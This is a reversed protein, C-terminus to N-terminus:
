CTVIEEGKLRCWPVLYPHGSEGSKSQRERSGRACAM